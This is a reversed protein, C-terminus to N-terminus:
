RVGKLSTVTSYMSCDTTTSCAGATWLLLSLRCLMWLESTVGLGIDQKGTVKLVCAEGCLCTRPQNCAIDSRRPLSDMAASSWPMKDAVGPPTLRTHSAQENLMNHPAILVCHVLSCHYEICIAVSVAADRM